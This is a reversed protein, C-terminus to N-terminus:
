SADAGPPAYGWRRLAAGWHAEVQQMMAPDLRHQNKRYGQQRDIYAEFRPRAAAFGPLRLGAYISELTALPRQELEEFRVEVLNGAPIRAREAEFRETVATYVELVLAEIQARTVHHFAARAMLREYLVITSPFVLHPNRVIHVFRAEPYLELLAAVRGTNAPNKLLLPRGGGAISAKAVVRRYARQWRQRAAPDDSGDEHEFLVTERLYAPLQKAFWIGNIIGVDDVCALAFEEEAPLEIGLAMEDMPRTKPLALALLRRHLWLDLLAYNQFYVHFYTLVSFAPDQAMLNHLHTTGTRWHGLILLPPTSLRHERLKRGYRLEELVAFPEGTLSLLLVRLARARFGPDVGRHLFMQVLKGPRAGVLPHGMLEEFARKISV